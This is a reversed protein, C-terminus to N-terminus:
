ANPSFIILLHIVFYYILTSLQIALVSNKSQKIVYWIATVVVVPLFVILWLYLFDKVQWMGLLSYILWACVFSIAILGYASGRKGLFASYSDKSNNEDQPLRMKRAWEIIFITLFVLVGYLIWSLNNNMSVESALFLFILLFILQSTQLSNYVLLYKKLKNGLWFDKSAFLSYSLVPIYFIIFKWGIIAVLALELIVTGYALYRIETLSVLGRQVPREPYHKNDHSYDRLEDFFRIHIMFLLCLFGLNIYLWLRPFSPVSGEVVRALSLILVSTTFITIVLPFREKQYKWLRQRLSKNIVTM